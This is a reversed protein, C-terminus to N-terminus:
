SKAGFIEYAICCRCQCSVNFHVLGENAPQFQFVVRVLPEPCSSAGYAQLSHYTEPFSATLNLGEATGAVSM